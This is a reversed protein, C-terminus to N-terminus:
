KNKTKKTKGENEKNLKTQEILKIREKESEIANVKWLDFLEQTVETTLAEPKDELNEGWDRGIRLYAMANFSRIENKSMDRPAWVVNYPSPDVSPILLVPIVNNLGGRAVKDILLLLDGIYDTKEEAMFFFSTDPLNQSYKIFTEKSVLIDKDNILNAVFAIDPDSTYVEADPNEMISCLPDVYSLIKAPYRYREDKKLLAQEM